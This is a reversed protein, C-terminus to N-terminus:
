LVHERLMHPIKSYLEDIILGWIYSSLSFINEVAFDRSTFRVLMVDKHVKKGL